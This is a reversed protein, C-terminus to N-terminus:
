WFQNFQRKKRSFSQPWNEKKSISKKVAILFVMDDQFMFRKIFIEKQFHLVLILLTKPTNVSRFDIKQSIIM